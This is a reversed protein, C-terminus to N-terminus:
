YEFSVNMGKKLAYAKWKKVYENWKQLMSKGRGKCDPRDVPTAAYYKVLTPHNDITTKTSEEVQSWESAKLSRIFYKAQWCHIRGDSLEWFCEKGGDPKGIRIFNKTNPITEKRALQCVLEEFGERQGDIAAINNWNINM